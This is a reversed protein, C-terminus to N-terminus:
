PKRSATVVATCSLTLLGETIEILQPEASGLQDVCAIVCNSWAKCAAAAIPTVTHTAAPSLPEPSPTPSPLACTSKGAELGLANPQPPVRSTAAAPLM